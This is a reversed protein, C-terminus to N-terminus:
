LNICFWLLYVIASCIIIKYNWEFLVMYLVPYDPQLIDSKILAHKTIFYKPIQFYMNTLYISWEMFISVARQKNTDM